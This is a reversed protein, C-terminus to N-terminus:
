FLVMAISVQSDTRYTNSALREVMLSVAVISNINPNYLSCEIFVVRTRDDLWKNFIMRSLGHSISGASSGLDRVYGGGDYMTLTGNGTPSIYIKFSLEDM